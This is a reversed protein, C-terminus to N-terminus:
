LHALTVIKVIKNIINLTLGIPQIILSSFFLATCKLRLTTVSSAEYKDKTTQDEVYYYCIAAYDAKSVWQNIPCFHM